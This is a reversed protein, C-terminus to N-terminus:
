TMKWAFICKNWSRLHSFTRSKKSIDSTLSFHKTNQVTPWVFCSMQIFCLVLSFASKFIITLQLKREWAETQGMENSVTYQLLGRHFIPHRRHHLKLYLSCTHITIADMGLRYFGTYRHACPNNSKLSMEWKESSIHWRYSQTEGDIWWSIKHMGSDVSPIGRPLM